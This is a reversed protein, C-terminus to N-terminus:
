HEWLIWVSKECEVRISLWTGDVDFEVDCVDAGIKMKLCEEIKKQLIVQINKKTKGCEFKKKLFRIQEKLM